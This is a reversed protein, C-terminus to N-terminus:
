MIWPSVLSLSSFISFLVLNDLSCKRKTKCSFYVYLDHTMLVRLGGALPDGQDVELPAVKLIEKKVQSFAPITSVIKLNSTGSERRWIEEPITLPKWEIHRFLWCFWTNFVSDPLAWALSVWFVAHCVWNMDNIVYQSSQTCALSQLGGIMQMSEEVFDVDVQLM